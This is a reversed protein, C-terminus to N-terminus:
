IRPRTYKHPIYQTTSKPNGIVAFHDSLTKPIKLRKLVNINKTGYVGEKQLPLAHQNIDGGIMDLSWTNKPITQNYKPPFYVSGISFKENNRKNKINLALIHGNETNINIKDLTLLPNEAVCIAVGNKKSSPHDNRWTKYGKIFLKDEPNTHTESLLAIDIGESLLIAALQQPKHPKLISQTNLILFRIKRKYQPLKTPDQSEQGKNEQQSTAKNLHPSKPEQHKHNFDNSTQNPNQPASNNSTEDTTTHNQYHHQTSTLSTHNHKNTNGIKYNPTNIALPSTGKTM